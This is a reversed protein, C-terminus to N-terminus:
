SLLRNLHSSSFIEYYEKVLANVGIGRPSKGCFINQKRLIKFIEFALELIVLGISAMNTSIQICKGHHIRTTIMACLTDSM